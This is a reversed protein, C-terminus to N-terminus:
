IHPQVFVSICWYKVLDCVKMQNQIFEDFLEKVDKGMEITISRYLPSKEPIYWSTSARIVSINHGRAHLEELLIKM